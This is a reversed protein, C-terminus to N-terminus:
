CQFETVLYFIVLHGVETRRRGTIFTSLLPGLLLINPLYDLLNNKLFSVHGLVDFM